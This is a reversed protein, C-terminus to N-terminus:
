PLASRNSIPNFLAPADFAVPRMLRYIPVESPAGAQAGAPRRKDVPVIGLAVFSSPSEPELAAVLVNAAPQAMRFVYTGAPFARRSPTVATTVSSRIHGEVFVNGQRREIVEYSEVDLELPAQLVSVEVGSFALRRAVESYSPLVFYAYPRLRSLAPVSERPDVWDVEVDKPGGSVPDSMTLVQRRPNERLTVAVRDDPRPERGREIATERAARTTRRVAQAHDAVATLLASLAVYQTHVRRAFSEGGLDSGRSGFLFAIANQLGAYNRGIDPATGGGSVRRDHPGFETTRYWGHSYGSRELARAVAPSFIREAMATIAPDVNPHTAYAMAFDHPQLAGSQEIWPASAALEHADVYVDPPLELTLRRLAATEPLDVKIHDRDIDMCRATPRWAHHAGDPNARPVIVVTIRELLPKLEGEALARAIALMAEGSAPEDGHVQGVLSVIPRGLREIEAPSFRRTDTFVLAPIRRLEQSFGATRLFLHDARAALADLFGMMEEYSTFASRGQAFAPTEFRVPPDVYRLKVADPQRYTVARECHALALSSAVSAIAVAAAAFRARYAIPKM